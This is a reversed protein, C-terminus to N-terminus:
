IETPWEACAVTCGAGEFALSCVYSPSPSLTHLTWDPSPTWQNLEPQYLLIGEPLTGVDIHDLQLTMGRGDAKIYAEKRTWLRAFIRSYEMPDLAELGARESACFVLNAVGADAADLPLVEVDVGLPRDGAVAVVLTEAAHSVNFHLESHSLLYPKGNGTYGFRVAKPALDLYSALIQRLLGRGAMFRQQDREFHFRAARALENQDLYSALQALRGGEVELDAHWLHVEGAPLPRASIAAQSGAPAHATM